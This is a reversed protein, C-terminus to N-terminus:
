KHVHAMFINLLDDMSITDPEQKNRRVYDLSKQFKQTEQVIFQRIRTFSDRKNHFNIIYGLHM